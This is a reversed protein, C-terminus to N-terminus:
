HRCNKTDSAHEHQAVAQMQLKALYRLLDIYDSLEDRDPCDFMTPTPLRMRLRGDRARYHIRMGTSWGDIAELAGLAEMRAVLEPCKGVLSWQPPVRNKQHVLSWDEGRPECRLALAFQPGAHMELPIGDWTGRAVLWRRSVTGELFATKARWIHTARRLLYAATFLAAIIALLVRM